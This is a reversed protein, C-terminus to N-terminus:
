RPWAKTARPIYPKNLGQYLGRDGRDVDVQELGVEPVQVDEPTDAAVQAVLLEEVTHVFVLNGVQAQLDRVELGHDLGFLVSASKRPRVAHVFASRLPERRRVAQEFASPLPQHRGLVREIRPLAANSATSLGTERSVVREFAELLGDEESVLGQFAM